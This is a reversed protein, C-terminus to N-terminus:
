DTLTNDPLKPQKNPPLVPVDGRAIAKDIIRVIRRLRKAESVLREAEALMKRGEKIQRRGKIALKPGAARMRYADVMRQADTKKSRTPTEVCGSSAGYKLAAYNKTGEAYMADGKAELAVGEAIDKRALKDMAEAYKDLMGARRTMDLAMKEDPTTGYDIAGILETANM